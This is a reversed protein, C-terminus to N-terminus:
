LFRGWNKDVTLPNGRKEEFVSQFHVNDLYGHFPREFFSNTGVRIPLDVKNMEDGVALKKKVERGDVKLVVEGSTRYSIFVESWVEAECPLSLTTSKDRYFINLNLTGEKWAVEWARPMDFITQSGTPEPRAPRVWFRMDFARKTNWNYMSRSCRSQNGDFYLAKGAPANEVEEPPDPVPVLKANSELRLQNVHFSTSRVTKYSEINGYQEMDWDVFLVPKTRDQASTLLCFFILIVRIM